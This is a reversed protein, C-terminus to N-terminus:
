RPACTTSYIDCPYDIPVTNGEPTKWSSAAYKTYSWPIGRHIRGGTYGNLCYPHADICFYRYTEQWGFNVPLSGTSSGVRSGLTYRTQYWTNGTMSTPNYSGAGFAYYDTSSGPAVGESWGATKCDYYPRPMNTWVTCAQFFNKPMNLDLELFGDSTQFRGPFIHWLYDAQSFDIGDYVIRGEHPWRTQTSHAAVSPALGIALGSAVLASAISMKM